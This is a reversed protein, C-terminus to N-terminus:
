PKGKTRAQEVVGEVTAVVLDPRDNQIGHGSGEAVIHTGDPSLAVM